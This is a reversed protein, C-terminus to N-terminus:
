NSLSQISLSAEQLRFCPTYIKHIYKVVLVYKRRGGTYKSEGSGGGGWCIENLGDEGGFKVEVGREDFIVEWGREGSVM